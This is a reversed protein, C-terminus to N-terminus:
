SNEDFTCPVVPLQLTQVVHVYAAADHPVSKACVVCKVVSLRYIIRGICVYQLYLVLVLYQVCADDMM